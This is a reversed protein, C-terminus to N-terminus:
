AFYENIQMLSKQFQAETLHTYTQLTIQIDSHGLIRQISKLDVGANYLNTTYQHRIQHRDIAPKLKGNVEKMMGHDECYHLWRRALVSQTLPKDKSVIYDEKSLSLELLRARLDNPLPIQRYSSNTKLPGIKAANGNYHVAKTVNILNHDFDIDKYQLALAEGCRLGTFYILYALQFEEPRTSLIERCQEDTLIDRTGRKLHKPLRVMLCPNAMQVGMDFIAKNFIQNLVTKHNSVSSLSYIKGLKFLFAQVESPSIEDIHRKGFQEVIRDFDSSYARWSGMEIKQWHEEKWEYAVDEFLPARSVEEKYQAIKLMLQQKSKSSFVKRVGNITVQKQYLGKKNKKM